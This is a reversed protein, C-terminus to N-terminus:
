VSTALGGFIAVMLALYGVVFVVALALFVTGVVGLVYGAQAPGRGGLMGNSRDIEEVTRKGVVWAFPAVLGCAALGLIGLVLAMTARPHEHGPGPPTPADGAHYSM